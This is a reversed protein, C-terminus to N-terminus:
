TKDVKIAQTLDDVINQVIPLVLHDSHMYDDIWYMRESNLVNEVVKNIIELMKDKHILDGCVGPLDAPKPIPPALPISDPEIWSHLISKTNRCKWRISLPLDKCECLEKADEIFKLVKKRLEEDM